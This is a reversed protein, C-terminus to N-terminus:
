LYLKIPVCVCGNRQMSSLSSEHELLLTSFYCSVTCGEFDLIHIRQGKVSFTQWRQELKQFSSLCHFLYKCIHLSNYLPLVPHEPLIKFTFPFCKVLRTYSFVFFHVLALCVLHSFNPLTGSVLFIVHLYALLHFLCQVNSM